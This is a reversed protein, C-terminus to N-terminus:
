CIGPVPGFEDAGATTASITVLPSSVQFPRELLDTLAFIDMGGRITASGSYDGANAASDIAVTVIPGTYTENPLLIGPVNAFFANGDPKLAGAAAGTLNFQIDNLFLTQTPSSNKLTGVFCVETGSAASHVAPSFTFELAAPMSSPAFLLPLMSIWHLPKM